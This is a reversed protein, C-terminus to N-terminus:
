NTSPQNATHSPQNNTCTAKLTYQHQLTPSPSLSSFPAHSNSTRVSILVPRKYSMSLSRAPPVRMVVADKLEDGCSEETDSDTDGSRLSCLDAGDTPTDPMGESTPSDCYASGDNHGDRSHGRGVGVRVIRGESDVQFLETIPVTPSTPDVAVSYEQLASMATRAIDVNEDEEQVIGLGHTMTMTRPREM